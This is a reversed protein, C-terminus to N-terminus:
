GNISILDKFFYTNAYEFCAQHGSELLHGAPSVKHGLDHAYQVFNKNDFKVCYSKIYNQLLTIAPSTHWQEDFILDDIFTMVFQINHQLMTDICLKIMSLTSLKDRYESHFNQYYAKSKADDHGPLITAWDSLEIYDFRDIFTWNIVFVAPETNTCENLIKEAIYLNGVGPYAFTKYDFTYHAALLAPWTCNSPFHAVSDSIPRITDDLESGYIFSCGFSKLKM